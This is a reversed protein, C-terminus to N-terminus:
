RVILVFLETKMRSCELQEMHVAARVFDALVDRYGKPDAQTYRGTTPDYQRNWNCYLGSEAQMLQGPFRLDVETTGTYSHLGGYPLGSM